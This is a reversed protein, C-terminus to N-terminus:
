KESGNKVWQAFEKRQKRIDVFGPRTELLRFPNGVYDKELEGNSKLFGEQGEREIKGAWVRWQIPRLNPSALVLGVIAVVLGVITEISIDVPLASSAPATSALTASTARLSQLASHEQASYCAHAVLLLGFSSIAKSIWTM